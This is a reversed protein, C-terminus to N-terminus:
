PIAGKSQREESVIHLMELVLDDVSLVQSHRSAYECRWGHAPERNPKNVDVIGQLHGSQVHPTMRDIFGEPNIRPMAAYLKHRRSGIRRASLEKLAGVMALASESCVVIVRVSETLYDDDLFVPVSAGLIDGGHEILVMDPRPWPKHRAAPPKKLSPICSPDALYRYLKMMARTYVEAEISYTTPLGVFGFNMGWAAGSSTHQLTDQIWETGSAKIAACNLEKSLGQLLRCAVTTKGVDTSTGLILLAPPIEVRPQSDSQDLGSITLTNLYAQQSSDYLIGVVEVDAPRGYGTQEYLTPSCGTCYGLGGSQAIWQLILKNYSCRKDRFSAAFYKTSNRECIVGIYMRGPLVNVRGGWSIEMDPFPGTELVRFLVVDGVRATLEDGSRVELEHRFLHDVRHGTLTAAELAPVEDALWNLDRMMSSIGHIEYSRIPTRQLLANAM